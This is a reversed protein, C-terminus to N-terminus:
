PGPARDLWWWAVAPGGHEAVRGDDFADRVRQSTFVLVGEAPVFGLPLVACDALLQQELRGYLVARQDRDQEVALADVTAQLSPEPHLDRLALQALSSLYPHPEVGTTRHTVTVVLGDLSQEALVKAASGQAVEVVKVPVGLAQWQKQVSQAVPLLRVDAGLRFEPLPTPVKALWERAATLDLEPVRLAPDHGLQRPQLLRHGPVLGEAPQALQQRDIARALAQRLAPHVAPRDVRALFQVTLVSVTGSASEVGVSVPLSGFAPQLQWNGTASKAVVSSAQGRGFFATDLEGRGIRRLAERPDHETHLEVADLWPLRGDGAWWREHRVLRIREPDPAADFRFPGTGVPRRWARPPDCHLLEAPFVQANLGVLPHALPTELHVALTSTSEVSLGALTDTQGARFAALGQVPVSTKGQRLREQLSARADHATV